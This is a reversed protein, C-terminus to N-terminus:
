AARDYLPKDVMGGKNLPRPQIGGPINDGERFYGYARLEQPDMNFGEGFARLFNLAYEERAQDSPLRRMEDLVYNFDGLDEATARDEELLRRDLNRFFDAYRRVLPSDDEHVAIRRTPAKRISEPLWDIEETYRLPVNIENAEYRNLFDMLEKDYKKGVSDNKWGKIQHVNAFPGDMGLRDIQITAYSKGEKDRLAFFRSM